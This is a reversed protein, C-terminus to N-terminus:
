VSSAFLSSERENQKKITKEKYPLVETKIAQRGQPPTQMLSIHKLSSLALYITRPIPTASLSLVDLSAKLHRLREKQKVGFKQEDDIILLQLNKFEVDKSLLRHTGILIDIRGDKLDKVIKKQEQKAQLGSLL